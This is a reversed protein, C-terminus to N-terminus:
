KRPLLKALWRNVDSFVKELTEPLDEYRKQHSSWARRFPDNIWESDLRSTIERERLLTNLTRRNIKSESRSIRWLDDFDKMRTNGGGFRQVAALKDAIVNAISAAPIKVGEAIPAPIQAVDTELQYVVDIAFRNSAGQDTKYAITVAAGLKQDSKVEEFKEVSFHIGEAVTCAEELLNKAREHSRTKLTTLDLDVTARPTNIYIWLLNGGKFVFDGSVQNLSELYSFMVYRLFAQPGFLGRQAAWTRARTMFSKPESIKPM